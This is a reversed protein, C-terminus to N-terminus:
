IWDIKIVGEFRKFDQDGTVLDANRLAALAAAFCDAYAINGKAKYQAAQYALTWDAPIIEIGLSRINEVKEDAVQGSHDRTVSYWVEGLNVTTMLLPIGDQNCKVLIEEVKQAQPEDQLFALIAWSDLVKGFRSM